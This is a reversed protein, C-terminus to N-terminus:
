GCEACRYVNPYATSWTYYLLSQLNATSQPGTVTGATATGACAISYCTAIFIVAHQERRAQQSLCVATVLGPLVCQVALLVWWNMCQLGNCALLYADLRRSAETSAMWRGTCDGKGPPTEIIPDCTTWSVLISVRGYQDLGYYQM